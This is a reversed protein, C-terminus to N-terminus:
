NLAWSPFPLGASRLAEATDPDITRLPITLGREREEQMLPILQHAGVCNGLCRSLEEDSLDHALEVHLRGIAAEVLQARRKERKALRDVEATATAKADDLDDTHYDAQPMHACDTFFKVRYEGWAADKMVSAHFITEGVDQRYGWVKKAKAM